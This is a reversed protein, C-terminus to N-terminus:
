PPSTVWASGMASGPNFALGGPRQTWRASCARVQEETCNPLQEQGGHPLDQEQGNGAQREGAWLHNWGSAVHSVPRQGVDADGGNWHSFSM